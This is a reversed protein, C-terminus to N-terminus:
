GRCAARERVKKKSKRNVAEDDTSVDSSDEDIIEKLGFLVIIQLM